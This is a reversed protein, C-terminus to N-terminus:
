DLQCIFNVIVFPSPPLYEKGVLAAEPPPDSPPDAGEKKVGIAGLLPEASLLLELFKIFHSIEHPVDGLYYNLISCRCIHPVIPCKKIWSM